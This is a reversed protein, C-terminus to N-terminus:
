QLFRMPDVSEQGRRVEFHLFSPDGAAVKAITQGRTVRADKAVSLNDINAYVSLLGGDHRIVMITVNGTTRTIAAVTGAAAARVNTGAPAAIGIGENRGPAYARIIRGDVPMQFSTPAPASATTREQALNPSAPATQAAAAQQQQVPAAPPPLPASASPPVPTPSGSGPQTVPQPAPESAPRFPPTPPTGQAVPILLTQGERVRMEPDLGNWDALDRASVNYLRAITFATEGRVVRHRTPQASAPQTAVPTPALTTSAPATVGEARAIATEALTTVTITNGGGMGGSQPAVAGPLARPLALVEGGRLMTEPTLANFRALEQASMGIRDAVSAVSDNPRAVVVQYEPYAIIGRADPRPRTASPARAADSTAFGNESRRMDIDFRNTCGAIGLVAASCLVALPPLKTM